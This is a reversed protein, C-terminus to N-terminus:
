PVPSPLGKREENENENSQKHQFTGYNPQKEQCFTSFNHPVPNVLNASVQRFDRRDRSERVHGCNHRTALKDFNRKSDVGGGGVVDM